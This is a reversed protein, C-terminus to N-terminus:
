PGEVENICYLGVVFTGDVLFFIFIKTDGEVPVVEIFVNVSVHWYEGGFSEFAKVMWGM